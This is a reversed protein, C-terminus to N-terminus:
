LNVILNQAIASPVPIKNQYLTRGQYRIVVIYAGAPLGNLAFRGYIDSVTSWQSLYSNQRSNLLYVQIVASAVAHGRAALAGSIRNQSQASSNWCAAFALLSSFVLRRSCM